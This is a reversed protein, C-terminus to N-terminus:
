PWYAQKEKQVGITRRCVMLADSTPPPPPETVPEEVIGTARKILEYTEHM